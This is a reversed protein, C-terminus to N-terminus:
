GEKAPRGREGCNPCFGEGYDKGAELAEAPEGTILAVGDATIGGTFRGPTRRTGLTCADNRCEYTTEASM